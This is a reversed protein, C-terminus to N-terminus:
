SSHVGPRNEAFSTLKTRVLAVLRDREAESQVGQLLGCVAVQLPHDTHGAEVARLFSDEMRTPRLSLIELALSSHAPEQSVLDLLLNQAQLHTM